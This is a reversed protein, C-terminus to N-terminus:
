HSHVETGGMENQLPNEPNGSTIVQWYTGTMPLHTVAVALEGDDCWHIQLHGTIMLM